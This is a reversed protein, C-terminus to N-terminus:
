IPVTFSFISGGNPNGEVWIKGRLQEIVKKCIALGIGTGSYEDRLHLRQFIVFIREKHQEPIGIGNDIFSFEHYTGKNQYKIVIEAVESTNYKIGNGVLNQFLQVMQTRDATIKPMVDAEVIIRREQFLGGLNKLVVDLVENLDIQEFNLNHNIKSLALLDAILTDMRKAGDIAYGIFQLEEADLKEIGRKQLLALYSSIMRLPEKLDHSAVHAFQQLENNSAELKQLYGEIEKNKQRLLDAEREKQELEYKIQTDKITARKDFNYLEEKLQQFKLTNEYAKEFQKLAAYSLSLHEYLEHLYIKSDLEKFIQEALLFNEIAEEHSNEHRCAQGIHMYSVAITYQNGMERKLALSRYMYDKATAFDGLDVHMSGINNLYVAVGHKDKIEESLALGKKQLGIATQPDDNYAYYSSAANYYRSLGLKNNTQEFLEKAKELYGKRLAGFEKTRFLVSMNYYLNGLADKEEATVPGKKESITIAKLYSSHSSELDGLYHLSLGKTTYARLHLEGEPELEIEKLALRCHEVANKYQCFSDCYSQAIHTHARAIWEPSNIHTALVLAEEASQLSSKDKVFNLEKSLKLLEEIRGLIAQRDDIGTTM